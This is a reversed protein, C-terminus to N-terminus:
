LIKKKKMYSIKRQNKNEEIKFYNNLINMKSYKYLM